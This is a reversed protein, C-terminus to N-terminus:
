KNTAALSCISFELPMGQKLHQLGVIGRELFVQLLFLPPDEKTTMANNSIMLTLHNSLSIFIILSLHRHHLNKKKASRHEASM